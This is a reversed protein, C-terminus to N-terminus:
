ISLIYGDLFPTYIRDLCYEIQTNSGPTEVIHTAFEGRLGELHKVTKRNFLIVELANRVIQASM